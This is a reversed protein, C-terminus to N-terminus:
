NVYLTKRKKKPKSKICHSVTPHAYWAHLLTAQDFWEFSVMRLQGSLSSLVEISTTSKKHGREM